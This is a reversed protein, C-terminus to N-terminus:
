DQFTAYRAAFVSKVRAVLELEASGRRYRAAAAEFTAIDRKLDLKGWLPFEQMLRYVTTRGNM